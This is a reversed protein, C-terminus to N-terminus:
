QVPVLPISNSSINRSHDPAFIAEQVLPVAARWMPMLQRPMPGPSSTM